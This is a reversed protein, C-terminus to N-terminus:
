EDKKKRTSKKPAETVTEESDAKKTRTTKASKTTKSTKTTKAAKVSKTKGAKASEEDKNEEKSEEKMQEKLMDAIDKGANNEESNDTPIMEETDSVANATDVLEVKDQQPEQFSAVAERERIARLQQEEALKIRARSEEIEKMLAKYEIEANKKLTNVYMDAAKQGAELIGGLKVSAEALSQSNELKDLAEDVELQMADKERQLRAKLGTIDKDFKAQMQAKQENFKARMEAKEEDFNKLMAAREEAFNQQLLIKEKDLEEKLEIEHQRAAEAEESFSIMMELLEARSLKKLNKDAM